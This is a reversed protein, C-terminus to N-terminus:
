AKLRALLRDIFAECQALQSLAVFENPKHAQEISGPGCVIAPMGAEQILGAETGFAVKVTDNTQALAKGLVVIEADEPTNLGPFASIDSWSFGADPTIAKMEPTLKEAFARVDGYLAEPDVGKVSVAARAALAAFAMTMVM